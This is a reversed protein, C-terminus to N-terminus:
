REAKEVAKAVDPRAIVGADGAQEIVVNALATRLAGAREDDSQSNVPASGSYTSPSAMGALPALALVWGFLRLPVHLRM